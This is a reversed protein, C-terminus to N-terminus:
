HFLLVSSALFYFQFRFFKMMKAHIKEYKLQFETQFRVIEEMRSKKKETEFTVYGVGSRDWDSAQMGFYYTRYSEM